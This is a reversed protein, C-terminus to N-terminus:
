DSPPLRALLQGVADALGDVSRTGPDELMNQLVIRIRRLANSVSSVSCFYPDFADMSKGGPKGQVRLLYIDAIAAIFDFFERYNTGSDAKLVMQVYGAFDDMDTVDRLAHRVNALDTQLRDYMFALNFENGWNHNISITDGINLVQHWWGAPVFVTEGPGQIIELTKLEHLRPYKVKDYDMLNYVWNGLGDTFLHTQGPPVMIWRKRGCINASWSYSRYVDEHFPTWTGNGGMYCFRYDDNLEPRSDYYMNIWDNSLYALPQYAQYNPNSRMFHWDKCYMHSQPAYRWKDVFDAFRMTTRQQDSFYVKDCEAVQVEADAYLELLQAYNPSGDKTVWDNRAPWSATHQADLVVPVNPELFDRVFESVSLGKRREIRELDM